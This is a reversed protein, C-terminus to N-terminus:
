NLSLPEMQEAQESGKGRITKIGLAQRLADGRTDTESAEELVTKKGLVKRIANWLNDAFRVGASRVALVFHQHVRGAAASVFLLFLYSAYAQAFSIPDFHREEDKASVYIMDTGIVSVWELQLKGVGEM